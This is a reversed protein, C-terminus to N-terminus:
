SAEQGVYLNRLLWTLDDPIGMVKHVKWDTKILM